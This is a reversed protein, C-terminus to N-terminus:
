LVRRWEESANSENMILKIESDGESGGIGDVDDPNSLTIGSLTRMEHERVEGKGVSDVLDSGSRHTLGM